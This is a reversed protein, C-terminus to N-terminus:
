FCSIVEDLVARYTSSSPSSGQRIGSRLNEGSSDAEGSLSSSSVPTEQLHFPCEEERPTPPVPDSDLNQREAPWPSLCKIWSSTRELGTSTIKSALLM